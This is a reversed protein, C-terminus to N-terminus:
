YLESLNSIEEQETPSLIGIKLVSALEAFSRRITMEASDYRIEYVHIDIIHQNTLYHREVVSEGYEDIANRVIQILTNRYSSTDIFQSNWKKGKYWVQRFDPISSLADLVTEIISTSQANKRENKINEVTDVAGTEMDLSDINKRNEFVNKLERTLKSLEKGYIGQKRLQNETLPKDILVKIGQKENRKIYGMIKNRYNTYQSNKTRKKRAM